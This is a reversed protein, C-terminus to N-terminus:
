IKAILFIIIKDAALEEGDEGDRAARKEKREEVANRKEAANEGGGNRIHQSNEVM